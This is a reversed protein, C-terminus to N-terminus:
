SFFELLTSFGRTVGSIFDSNNEEAREIKDESRLAVYEYMRKDIKIFGLEEARREMEKIDNKKEYQVRMLAERKKLEALEKKQSSINVTKENLNVHNSIVLVFLGATFFLLFLTGFRRRRNKKVTRRRKMDNLSNKQVEKM